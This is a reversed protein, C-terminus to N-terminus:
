LNGQGQYDLPRESLGILRSFYVYMLYLSSPHTLSPFEGYKFANTDLPLGSLLSLAVLIYVFAM